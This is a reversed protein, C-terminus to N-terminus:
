NEPPEMEAPQAKVADAKEVFDINNCLRWLKQAREVGELYSRGLATSSDRENVRVRRADRALPRAFIISVLLAVAALAFLVITVILYTGGRDTFMITSFGIAACLLVVFPIVACIFRILSKKRATKFRARREVKKGENEAKLAENKEEQAKLENQVVSFYNDAILKRDKDSSNNQLRFSIDELEDLRSFDTFNKSLLTLKLPYIDGLEEYESQASDLTTLAYEEQGDALLERAKEVLEVAKAEAAACEEERKKRVLYLQEPTMTTAEEDDEEFEPVELGTEYAEEAEGDEDPGIIELEEEGNENIRIRYKRDKDDDIFREEAM